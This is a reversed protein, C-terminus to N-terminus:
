TGLRSFLTKWFTSTFKVDRYSSVVKPIGHLRFIKTMFIDIIKVIKYTSKVLLFHTMKSLNDFVVMILDHDKKTQPLYTIFDLTIMEWKWEPITLPQLLGTPHQHEEKVLQCELCKAM